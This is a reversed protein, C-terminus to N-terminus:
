SRAKASDGRANPAESVASGPEEDQIAEGKASVSQDRAEPSARKAEKEESAQQDDHCDADADEFQERRSGHPTLVRGVSPKETQGSYGRKTKRHSKQSQCQAPDLEFGPRQM